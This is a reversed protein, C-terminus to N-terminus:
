IELCEAIVQRMEEAERLRGHKGYGRELILCKRQLEQRAAQQQEPSLTAAALLSQLARVRYRDMGWDRHSLQDAHGGRKVILAESLFAVPYRATIRLWLEYDECAPYSEDFGGMEQFLERKMLVSSPSILCLPLCKEFIYGSYKRHKHGQNVRVGRRIWIEDTYCLRCDPHAAM